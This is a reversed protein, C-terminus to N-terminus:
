FSRDELVKRVKQIELRIAFHEDISLFLENLPIADAFNIEFGSEGNLGGYLDSLRSVLENM